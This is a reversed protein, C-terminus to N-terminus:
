IQYEDLTPDQQHEQHHHLLHLAATYLLRAVAEAAVVAIEM